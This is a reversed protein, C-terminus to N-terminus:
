AARQKKTALSKKAPSLRRDSLSCRAPQRYGFPRLAPHKARVQARPRRRSPTVLTSRWPFASSTAGKTTTATKKLPRARAWGGHIRGQCAGGRAAMAVSECRVEGTQPQAHHVLDKLGDLRAADRRGVSRRAPCCRISAGPCRCACAGAPTTTTARRRSHAPCRLATLGSHVLRSGHRICLSIRRLFHGVGVLTNLMERFQSVPAHITGRIQSANGRSHRARGAPWCPPSWRCPRPWCPWPPRASPRSPPSARVM